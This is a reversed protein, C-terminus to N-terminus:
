TRLRAVAAAVVNAVAQLFHPDDESHKRVQTSHTSLVGWAGGPGCVPVALGSRIGAKHLEEHGEFRQEAHLDELLVPKGAQLTYGTHNSPRVPIPRTAALDWGRAAVLRLEEGQRRMVAAYENGLTEAVTGAVADLLADLDHSDLALQGLRAVAAQQRARLALRRESERLAAEGERERTVDRLFARAHVFRGAHMMANCTLLGHRVGGDKARLLVEENVVTENRRLRELIGQARDRDLHFDAVHRGVYEEATYGLMQLEARNAWQIRGEADVVHMGVAGNEAFDELDLRAQEGAALAAREADIDLVLATFGWVGGDADRMPVCYARVWRHGLPLELHVEFTMPEGRLVRDLQGRLRPLAAPGVTAEMTKGILDRPDIGYWAKYAANAVHYRLDRDICSVLVPLSDIVAQPDVPRPAHALTATAGADPANM